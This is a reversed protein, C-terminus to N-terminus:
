PASRRTGAFRCRHLDCVPSEQGRQTVQAVPFSAGSGRFAPRYETAGYILVGAPVLLHQMANSLPLGPAFANTVYLCPPLVHWRGTGDNGSRGGQAQPRRTSPRSRVPARAAPGIRRVSGTRAFWSSREVSTDAWFAPSHAATLSLRTSSREGERVRVCRKDGVDAYWACGESDLCVGDPHDNVAAWVRRRSLDEEPSIDFAILRCAYSEAVISIKNDPTVAMGHPFAFDEAVKRVAGRPAVLVIVGPRFEGSPFNFGIDNVYISGSGDVVITGLPTSGLCNTFTPM